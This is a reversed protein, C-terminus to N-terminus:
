YWDWLLSQIGILWSADKIVGLEKWEGSFFSIQSFPLIFDWRTHIVVFKTQLTCLFINEFLMVSYCLEGGGYGTQWFRLVLQHCPFTSVKSLAFSMRLLFCAWGPVGGALFSFIAVERRLCRKAISLSISVLLGDQTSRSAQWNFRKQFSSWFIFLDYQVGVKENFWVGQILCWLYFMTTEKRVWDIVAWDLYKEKEILQIWCFREDWQWLFELGSSHKEM